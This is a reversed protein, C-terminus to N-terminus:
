VAVPVSLRTILFPEKEIPITEGDEAMSEVHLELAEAINKKAEDLTEGFSHCGSLAPVFAHYGEEDPEIVITFTYKM